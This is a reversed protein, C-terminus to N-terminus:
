GYTTVLNHLEEFQYTIQEQSTHANHIQVLFVKQTM